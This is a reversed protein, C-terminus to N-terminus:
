SDFAQWTPTCLVLICCVDSWWLVHVSLEEIIIFIIYLNNIFLNNIVNEYLFVFKRKVGTELNASKNHENTILICTSPFVSSYYLSLVAISGM